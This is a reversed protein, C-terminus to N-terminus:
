LEEHYSGWALAEHSGEPMVPGTEARKLLGEAKPLEHGRSHSQRYEQVFPPKECFVKCIVETETDQTELIWM